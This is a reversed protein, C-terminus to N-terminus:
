LLQHGTIRAAGCYLRFGPMGKRLTDVASHVVRLVFTLACYPRLHLILAVPLALSPMYECLLGRTVLTRLTHEYLSPGRETFPKRGQGLGSNM